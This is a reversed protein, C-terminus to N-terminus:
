CDGKGEGHLDIFAGASRRRRHELRHLHRVLVRYARQPQARAPVGAELLHLAGGREDDLLGLPLAGLLALTHPTRLLGNVGSLSPHAPRRSLLVQRARFSPLTVDIMTNTPEHPRRAIFWQILSPNPELLALGVGVKPFWHQM